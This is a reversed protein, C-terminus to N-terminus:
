SGGHAMEHLEVAAAFLHRCMAAAGIEREGLASQKQLDDVSTSPRFFALNFELPDFSIKGSLYRHCDDCVGLLDRLEERGIREYTLHHVAELPPVGCRECWGRSRERVAERKVAWERSALYRKYEATTM